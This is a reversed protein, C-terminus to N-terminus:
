NVALYRLLTMEGKTIGVVKKGNLSVEYPNKAQEVTIEGSVLNWKVVYSNPSAIASTGGNASTYNGVVLADITRAEADIVAIRRGNVTMPVKRAEPASKESSWGGSVPRDPNQVYVTVCGQRQSYEVSYQRLPNRSLIEMELSALDSKM